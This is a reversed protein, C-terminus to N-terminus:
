LGDGHASRRRQVRRNGPFPVVVGRKHPRGRDDGIERVHSYGCLHCHEHVHVRRRGEPTDPLRICPTELAANHCEPCTAFRARTGPVHTVANTCRQCVLVQYPDGPTPDAIPVLVLGCSPCKRRRGQWSLAGAALALGVLGTAALWLLLEVGGTLM